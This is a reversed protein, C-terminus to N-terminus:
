VLSSFFRHSCLQEFDTWKPIYARNRIEVSNETKRSFLIWARWKHNSWGTAIKMSGHSNVENKALPLPVHRNHITLVFAMFEQKKHFQAWQLYRELILDFVCNLHNQIQQFSSLLYLYIAFIVALFFFFHLPFVFSLPIIFVPSFFFCQLIFRFNITRTQFYHFLFFYSQTRSLLSLSAFLFSTPFKSYIFSFM